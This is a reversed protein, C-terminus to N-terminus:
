KLFRDPSFPKLLTPMKGSLIGKALLEGAYAGILIGSRYYGTAFYLGRVQPSVGIVPLGDRSKPRLGAWSDARQARKLFPLMRIAKSEIGRIGKQTVRPNFGVSEVTSGILACHNEWPVIYGGRLSHFIHRVPIKSKLISIQGRIPRVPIKFRPLPLLGSWSGSAVIVRSTGYFKNQIRVGSIARGSFSMRIPQSMELVDVKLHRAREFLAKKLKRPNVKALTPYYLAGRIFPNLGKQLQFLKKQELRRVPLTIKKQWAYWAKLVSEDKQSFAVYIMGTKKFGTKVGTQKELRRIFAPYRAFAALTLSLLPHRSRMELLPDLIGASAPTAEGKLNKKGILLIKQGSEALAVACGLGAVGRGLIVCDYRKTM